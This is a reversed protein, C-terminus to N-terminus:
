GWSGSPVGPMSCRKVPYTIIYSNGSRSIEVLRDGKLVQLHQSANAINMSTQEAIEEVSFPSQALM